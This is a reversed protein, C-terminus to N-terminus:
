FPMLNDRDRDRVLRMALRYCNIADAVDRVADVLARAALRDPPAPDDELEHDDPHAAVLAVLSVDVAADLVALVALEPATYIDEVLPRRFRM